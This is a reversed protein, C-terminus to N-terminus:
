RVVLIEQMILKQVTPASSGHQKACRACCLVSVWGGPPTLPNTITKCIQKMVSMLSQLQWWIAICLHKNGDSPLISSSCLILAVGGGKGTMIVFVPSFVAHESSRIFKFAIFRLSCCSSAVIEQLFCLETGAAAACAGYGLTDLSIKWVERAQCGDFMYASRDTRRRWVRVFNSLHKRWIDRPHPPRPREIAIPDCSFM